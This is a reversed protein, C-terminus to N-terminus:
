KEINENSVVGDKMNSILSFLEKLRSIDGKLYLYGFLAELGTASHYQAYTSNKPINKTHANRGRKYVSLEEDTLFNLINNFAESQAKCCVRNVKIENLKGVPANSKLIIEHRVMLDYVSDGIFALVLPNLNKYDCKKDFFLSM